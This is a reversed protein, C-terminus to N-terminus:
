QVGASANTYSAVFQIPVHCVVDATPQLAMLQQIEVSTYFNHSLSVM